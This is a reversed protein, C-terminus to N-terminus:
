SGHVPVMQGNRSVRYQHGRWHVTRGGFAMTWIAVSLFDKIPATLGVLFPHCPNDDDKLIRNALASAMLVRLVVSVGFGLMSGGGLVLWLFAWFTLSTILSFFYSIPQCVRITRAWRLQHAWVQSWGAPSEWCEVVVPAIALQAPLQAVRRALQNDDALFNVVSAFGGMRQLADRRITMAAGLAFRIPGLQRAQLVQAWFDANVVVAEWYSAFNTPNAMRYLNSVMGIAPDDFCSVVTTLFDFPALVDADSIVVLPHRISPELQMLTSVKANPGLSEPCIVLQADFEPFETMLERVVEIIPDNPDRVGFLLQIPGPYRLTFWSRLCNRSRGDKGRLPKLITVGSAKGTLRLRRHIPTLLGVAFQWVNTVLSLGALVAWISLSTM